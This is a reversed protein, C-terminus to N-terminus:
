AARRVLHPVARELATGGALLRGKWWFRTGGDRGRSIEGIRTNLLLKKTPRRTVVKVEWCPVIRISQDARREGSVFRSATLRYPGIELKM